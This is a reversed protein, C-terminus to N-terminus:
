FPADPPAARGSEDGDSDAMMEALLDDSDGSARAAAREAEIAKKASAVQKTDAWIKLAGARDVGRKQMTAVLLGEVGREDKGSVRMIAAILIGPDDAKPTAVRLAWEDSGSELHEVIRLMAARKQEPTASEGTEKDRMLAGADRIRQEFGHYMARSRNQASVKDPDFTISPLGDRPFAFILKGDLRTVTTVSNSKVKETSNM